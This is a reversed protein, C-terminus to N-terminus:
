LPVQQEYQSCNAIRMGCGDCIGDGNADGHPGQMDCHGEYGAGGTHMPCTAYGGNMMGGQGMMGGGNSMMGSPAQTTMLGPTAVTTALIGTGLLAALGVIMGTTLATKEGGKEQPGRESIRM